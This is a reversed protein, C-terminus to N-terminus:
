DNSAPARTVDDNAGLFPLVGIILPITPILVARFFGHAFGLREFPQRLAVAIVLVLLWVFAMVISPFVAVVIRVPRASGARQSLYTCAAAVFPLSFLWVNNPTLLMESNNSSLHLWPASMQLIIMWALSGFLSALAPLWFQKTRDNTNKESKAREITKALARWDSDQALVNRLAQSPPVGAALKEQYLDALHAALEAVVEDQKAPPLQLDGLHERVLKNWDHM